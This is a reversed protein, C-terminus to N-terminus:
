YEVRAQQAEWREVARDEMESRALELEHKTIVELVEDYPLKDFDFDEGTEGYTASILEIEDYTTNYEIVLEVEEDTDRCYYTYDFEYSM